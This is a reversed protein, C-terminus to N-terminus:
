NTAPRSPSDRSVFVQAALALVIPFCVLVYRPEPTELTTLFATRLVLFAILLVVSFRAAPYRWLKVAGLGATLVYFINLLVFGVTFSQDVSDENWSQRLPFVKGSLPVLEIRPAFWITFVRITPVWLYTRLPHRATRERAVEAFQGDEEATLHLTKNYADLIAAIRTKEESTDFARAPIDDILIAEEELKWPVLYCDRMRFLWTKEWAMFGRHVLETPLNSYKPTLIQLEHLTIANRLAWPALPLAFAVGSIACMRIGYWLAQKWTAALLVVWTVLLLM